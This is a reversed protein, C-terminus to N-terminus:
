YLQLLLLISCLFPIRWGWSLLDDKDMAPRHALGAFGTINRQEFGSWLLHFWDVDNLPLM